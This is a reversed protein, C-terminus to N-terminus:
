WTIIPMMCRAYFLFTASDDIKALLWKIKIGDYCYSISIILYAFYVM